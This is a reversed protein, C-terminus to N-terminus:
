FSRWTHRTGRGWSEMNTNKKGRQLRKTSRSDPVESARDHRQTSLIRSFMSRTSVMSKNDGTINVSIKVAILGQLDDASKCATFSNSDTVSRSQTKAIARQVDATQKIESHHLKQIENKLVCKHNVRVLPHIKSLLETQSYTNGLSRSLFWPCLMLCNKREFKFSLKEIIHTYTCKKLFLRIEKAVQVFVPLKQWM